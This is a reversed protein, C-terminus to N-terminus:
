LFRSVTLAVVDDVLVLAGCDARLGQAIDDAATTLLVGYSHASPDKALGRLHILAPLDVGARQPPSLVVQLCDLPTNRM